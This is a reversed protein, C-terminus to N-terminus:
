MQSLLAYRPKPDRGANEVIGPEVQDGRDNAGDNSGNEVCDEGPEDLLPSRRGCGPRRGFSTGFLLIALDLDRRRAAAHRHREHRLEFLARRQGLRRSFIMSGRLRSALRPRTL